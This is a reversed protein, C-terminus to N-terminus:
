TVVSGARGSSVPLMGHISVPGPLDNRGGPLQGPRLRPRGDRAMVQGAHHGGGPWPYAAPAVAVLNEPQDSEVPGTGGGLVSGDRGSVQGRFGSRGVVDGRRGDREACEGRPLGQMLVRVQSGALMDKDV